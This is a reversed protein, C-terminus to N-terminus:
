HLGLWQGPHSPASPFPNGERSTGPLSPRLHTPALLCTSTRLLTCGGSAAALTTFTPWWGAPPLNCDPGAAPSSCPFSGPRPSPGRSCTVSPTTRSTNEGRCCVETLGCMCVGRVCVRPVSGSCACVLCMCITGYVCEACLRQNGRWTASAGVGPKCPWDPRSTGGM